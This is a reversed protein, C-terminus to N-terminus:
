RSGDERGGAADERRQREFCRRSRVCVVTEEAAPLEYQLLGGAIEFAQELQAPLLALQDPLICLPLNQRVFAVRVGEEPLEMFVPLQFLVHSPM